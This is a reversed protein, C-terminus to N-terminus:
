LLCAISNLWNGCNYLDNSPVLTNTVISIYKGEGNKVKCYIEMALAFQSYNQHLHGFTAGVENNYLDMSTRIPTSGPCQEHLDGLRRATAYGWKKSMLANWYMHKFANKNDDDLIGTCFLQNAFSEATGALDGQALGETPNAYYYAKEALCGGGPLIDNLKAMLWDAIEQPTATITSAGTSGYSGGTTTVPISAYVGSNSNPDQGGCGSWFGSKHLTIYAEGDSNVGAETWSTDIFECALVKGNKIGEKTYINSIIKGESVKFGKIFKGNWDSVITIGTFKDPDQQIKIKIDPIYKILEYQLKGKEDTFINLQNVAFPTERFLYLDFTKKDLNNEKINDSDIEFVPISVVSNGKYDKKQASFKWHALMSKGNGNIRSNSSNIVTKQFWSKAIEMTLLNGSEVYTDDPSISIDEKCSLLCLSLGVTVIGLRQLTKKMVKTNPNFQQFIIKGTLRALRGFM